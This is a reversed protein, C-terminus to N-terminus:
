SFPRPNLHSRVQHPGATRNSNNSNSNNNSSSPQPPQERAGFGGIGTIIPGNAVGIAGIAAGFPAFGAGPIGPDPAFLGEPGVVLQFEEAYPTPVEGDALVDSELPTGEAAAKERARLGHIRVNAFTPPLNSTFGFVCSRNGPRLESDGTWVARVVAFQQVGLGTRSTMNLNAALPQVVPRSGVMGTSAILVDSHVRDPAGRFDASNLLLVHDPDHAPDKDQNPAGKVKSWDPVGMMRFARVSEMANAPNVYLREAPKESVSADMASVPRPAASKGDKGVTEAAFGVGSFYGWSTVGRPDVLSQVSCGGIVGQTKRDNVIQYLYIYRASVDLVPSVDQDSGRGPRFAADFDKWGTAWTDGQVTQSARDFVMFYVTGGIGLRGDKDDVALLIKGGAEIRDPPTGLRTYGTFAPIGDARVPVAAISLVIVTLLALAVGRASRGYSIRIAM